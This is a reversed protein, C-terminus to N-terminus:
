SALSEPPSLVDHCCRPVRCRPPRDRRQGSLSPRHRGLASLEFHHCNRAEASGTIREPPYLLTTDWEAPSLLSTASTPLSRAAASFLSSFRSKNKELFTLGLHNTVHIPM